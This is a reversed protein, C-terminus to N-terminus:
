SIKGLQIDWRPYQWNSLIYGLRQSKNQNGPGPMRRWRSARRNRQGGRVQPFFRCAEPAGMRQVFRACVGGAAGFVLLSLSKLIVVWCLFILRRPALREAREFYKNVVAATADPM